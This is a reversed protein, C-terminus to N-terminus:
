IGKKMVVAPLVKENWNLTINEIMKFGNKIWFNIVYKDYNKVVDIRLSESNYYKSYIEFLKYVKMGIGQGRLNNDIMLLSLYTEKGLKFDILGVIENSEKQIVKYSYFGENKMINLEDSVWKTTVIEKGIHSKLFVKNSNYIRTIDNLDKSDILTM